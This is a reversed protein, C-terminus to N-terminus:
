GRADEPLPLLLTFVTRGPESEFTILGDHRIAIAQALPLGLGTGERRGTVMPFFVLPRIDAPVGPGDDVVDVRLARPHRSAAVLADRELRTRLQLRKAGAQWANRALNLLAQLLADFGGEVPPLSPDYDREIRLAEGAEGSLLSVVREAVEHINVTEEGRRPVPTGLRDLLAEMRRGEREIIAVYDRLGDDDLERELLQAAGRLGALPNRLEHGLARVLMNAAGHQAVLAEGAERRHDHPHLEIVLGGDPRDLPTVVADAHTVERGTGSLALDHVTFSRGEDRAREALQELAAPLATPGDSAVSLLREAAPNLYAIRGERDLLMVPTALQALIGAAARDPMMGGARAM